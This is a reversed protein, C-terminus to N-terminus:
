ITQLISNLATPSSKFPSQVQQYSSPGHASVLEEVRTKDEERDEKEVEDRRTEEM